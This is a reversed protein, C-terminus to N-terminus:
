ALRETVFVLTAKFVHRGGEERVEVVIARREGGDPLADQALDPLVEVAARCAAELGDFEVGQEDRTACAGDDIDFYYCPM